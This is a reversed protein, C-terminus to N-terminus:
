RIRTVQSAFRYDASEDMSPDVWMTQDKGNRMGSVVGIGSERNSSRLFSPPRWGRPCGPTSPERYRLVQCPSLQLM